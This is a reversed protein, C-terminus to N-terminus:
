TNPFGQLIPLTQITTDERGRTGAYSPVDPIRQFGTTFMFVGCVLFSGLLLMAEAVLGRAQERDAM